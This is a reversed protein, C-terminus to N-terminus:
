FHFSRCAVLSQPQTKSPNKFEGPDLSGQQGRESAAEAGVVASSDGGAEGEGQVGM